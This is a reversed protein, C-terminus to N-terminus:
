ESKGATAETPKLNCYGTMEVSFAYSGDTQKTATGFRTEYPSALIKEALSVRLLRMQPSTLDPPNGIIWEKSPRNEGVFVTKNQPPDLAALSQAFEPSLPAKIVPIGDATTGSAPNFFCQLMMAAVPANMRFAGDVDFVWEGFVGLVALNAPINEM